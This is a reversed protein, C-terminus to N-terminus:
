VRLEGNDAGSPALLLRSDLPQAADFVGHGAIHVVRFRPGASIFAQKTAKAGLLVSSEPMLRNLNTAELEASPLDLTPNGLILAATRPGPASKRLFKLASASTTVRLAHKELLYSKGDYLAAFPLYHLGSHPVILLARNGLASELPAVLRAYLKQGLAN